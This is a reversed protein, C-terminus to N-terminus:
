LLLQQDSRWEPSMFAWPNFFTREDVNGTNYCGKEGLQDGGLLVDISAAAIATPTSQQMPEGMTNLNSLM